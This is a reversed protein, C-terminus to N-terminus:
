EKAMGKDIIIRGNNRTHEDKVWPISIPDMLLRQVVFLNRGAVVVSVDHVCIECKQM